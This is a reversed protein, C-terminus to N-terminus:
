IFRLITPLKVSALHKNIVKLLMAHTLNDMASNGGYGFPAFDGKLPHDPFFESLKDTLKKATSM